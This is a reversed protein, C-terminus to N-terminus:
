KKPYNCPPMNKEGLYKGITLLIEYEEITSPPVKKMRSYGHGTDGFPIGGTCIESSLTFVEVKTKSESISDLHIHFEVWYPLPKGSRFYIKSEINCHSILLADYRIDTNFIDNEYDEKSYLVMCKMQHDGLGDIISKKVQEINANFIYSTLNPTDLKKKSYCGRIALSLALLVSLAIFIRKIKTKKMM